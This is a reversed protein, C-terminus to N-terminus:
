QILKENKAVRVIEIYDTSERARKWGCDILAYAHFYGRFLAFRLRLSWDCNILLLLHFVIYQDSLM